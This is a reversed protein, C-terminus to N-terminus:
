RLAGQISGVSAQNVREMARAVVGATENASNGGTVHISVNPSATVNNTSGNNYTNGASSPMLARSNSFDMRRALDTMKGITNPSIGGMSEPKLVQPPLAGWGKASGDTDYARLIRDESVGILGEWENRLGAVSRGRRRILADMFREQLEPTMVEDMANHEKALGRLTTEVFQGRGVPFAPSGVRKRMMNQYALAERVTMQTVPKDPWGHKGNGYVSNYSHSGSERSQILAKLASFRGPTAGEAGAPASGDGGGGTLWRWTKKIRAMAGEGGGGAGGGVGPLEDGPNMGSKPRGGHVLAEGTQSGKYLESGLWATGALVGAPLGLRLLMATWGMGIKAFGALIKVVWAGLLWTAFTDLSGQLGDQGNIAKAWDGFQVIIPGLYGGLTEIGHAFALVVKEGLQLAANIQEPHADIWNQFGTVIRTLAPALDSYFKEALTTGTDQLGRLAQMFDKGSKAARENDLGFAKARRESQEQFRQMEERNQRMVTFTGEDIGLDSAYDRALYYPMNATKKFFDEVIKNEALLKGGADRTKVGLQGLMGEYGPNNRLNRAFAEMSQLAGDYSGGLQGVAYAMSKLSQVSQNTRQSAYYMREFGDAINAVSRVVTKAMGEIASAFLTARVISAELRRSRERERDREARDQDRAEKEDDRRQRRTREMLEQQKKFSAEDIRWGISVFFDELLNSM